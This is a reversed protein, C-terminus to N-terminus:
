KPLCAECVFIRRGRPPGDTLGLHAREGPKMERECKVCSSGQALTVAQFAFVDALPDIHVRKKLREREIELQHAAKKLREEVNETAADAVNLADELITRVLNSVPVRLSEAFRKLERELVAPVRTHLVREKKAPADGDISDATAAEAGTPTEGASGVAEGSVPKAHPRDASEHPAAQTV